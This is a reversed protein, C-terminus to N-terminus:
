RAELAKQYLFVYYEQNMIFDYAYTEGDSFEITDGLTYSLSGDTNIIQGYSAYSSSYEGIGAVHIVRSYLHVKGNLYHWVIAQKSSVVVAEGNENYYFRKEDTYVEVVYSDDDATVAQFSLPVADSSKLREAACANTVELMQADLKAELEKINPDSKDVESETKVESFLKVGTGEEPVATPLATGALDAAKISEEQMQQEILSSLLQIDPDNLDAAKGSKMKLLSEAEADTLRAEGPVPTPLAAEMEGGNQPRSNNIGAYVTGIPLALIGICLIASILTRKKM